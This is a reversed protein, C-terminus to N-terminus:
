TQAIINIKNCDQINQESEQSYVISDMEVVRKCIIM